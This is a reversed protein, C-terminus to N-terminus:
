EVNFFIPEHILNDGNEITNFSSELDRFFNNLEAEEAEYDYDDAEIFEEEINEEEDFTDDEILSQSAKVFIQTFYYEGKSNKAVGVGTLNFDGVINAYHGPSNLWGSVAVQVPNSYGYNYAVNEGFKTLTPIAQILRLFRDQVGQHGFPVIKNAMNLSHLRAEQAIVDSWALPHLFNAVRNQNILNFVDQELQTETVASLVLAQSVIQEELAQTPEINYVSSILLTLYFFTKKM